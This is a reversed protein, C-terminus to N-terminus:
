HNIGQFQRCLLFIDRPNGLAYVLEQQLRAFGIELFEQTIEVHFSATLQGGSRQNLVAQETIVLQQM